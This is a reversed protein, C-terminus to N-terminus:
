RDRARRSSAAGAHARAGAPSRSPRRRRASCTRRCSSRRPRARADVIVKRNHSLFEEMTEIYLRESPDSGPAHRYEAYLQNFRAAQGQAERVVQERYGQASQTIKAADGKAENVVRNRYTNAENILSQQDQEASQVDRFAAVVEAPPNANPDAGSSPSAPQLSGPDDADADLTQAQVQGRGNTLIDRLNNRRGGRAHRERGGGEGGPGSRSRTFLYRAADAVRWTVSFDLDVINEDGTLMLSEEPM